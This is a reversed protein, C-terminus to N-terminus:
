LIVGCVDGKKINVTCIFNCIDDLHFILMRSGIIAFIVKWYIIQGANIINMNGIGVNYVCWDVAPM